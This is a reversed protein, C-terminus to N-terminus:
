MQRYRCRKIRHLYQLFHILYSHDDGENIKEEKEIEGWLLMHSGMNFTGSIRVEKYGQVWAPYYFGFHKTCKVEFPLEHLEPPRSSHHKGLKYIADEYAAPVESVVIKGTAIIRELTRNTHRLGFVYKRQLPVEGLLDMPFLNYEDGERFSVLRVRRPYSYAAVFGKFRRYSMKDRSYYRRYLVWRRIPDLQMLRCRRVQLLLLVGGGDEVRHLLDLTIVAADGFCLRYSAEGPVEPGLWVGFVLPKICLLWHSLSVDIKKEGSELWVLEEAEGTFRVRSYESFMTDGMLIKRILRKM